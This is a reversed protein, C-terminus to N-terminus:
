SDYLQTITQLRLSPDQILDLLQPDTGIGDEDVRCTCIVQFHQGIGGLHELSESDTLIRLAAQTGWGFVGAAVIADRDKNYPNKMRTLIGYDRSVEKERRNAEVNFDPDRTSVISHGGSGGFRFIIEPQEFLFKSVKNPIPGGVSILPSRLEDAGLRDARERKVTYNQRALAEHLDMVGFFQHIATAEVDRDVDHPPLVILLEDEAFTEFFREQRGQQALSWVDIPSEGKWGADEFARVHQIIENVYRGEALSDPDFDYYVCRLDKIDFPIEEGKQILIIVPRKAAHAIALEYFVNPNHGTLVAICVDDGLIRQLMQKSIPGPEHVHDSRVATIGCKKMAPEILHRFVKDAHSWEESGEEGIPSIVFCTRGTRSM